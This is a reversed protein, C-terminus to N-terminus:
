ILARSLSPLFFRKDAASVIPKVGWDVPENNFFINPDDFPIRGEDDPNYEHSTLYILDATDSLVRVGHLVGPPIRIICRSTDDVKFAQSNKYTLAETRNDYLYVTAVGSALYWWDSQRHHFHWAKVVDKGMRSHSWQGFTGGEFISDSNRFLERFFGRSDGHSTLPEIVVGLIEESLLKSM